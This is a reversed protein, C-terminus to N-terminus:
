KEAKAAFYGLEAELLKNLGRGLVQWGPAGNNKMHGGLGAVAMMIETASPADPLKAKPRAFRLINLQAPTLLPTVTATLRAQAVDRLQLLRWAVSAYLVLANLLSTRSELQLKEFGCGTKLAKFYEEIVWRACYADVIREVQKRTEIPENTVLLWEVPACNEPPAPEYVRVVNLQLESACSAAPVFNSRRIVYSAATVKLEAAREQRPPNSRKNLPTRRYSAGKLPVRGTASPEGREATHRATLTVTRTLMVEDVDRIADVLKVAQGSEDFARRNYHARIVYRAAAAQLQAMLLYSDAERDIVHVVQGPGLHQEVAEAGEAWPDVYGEGDAEDKFTTEINLVGHVQRSLGELTCLLSAHATFGQTGNPLFSLGPRLYDGGFKLETGDHIAVWFGGAERARMLTQRQHPALLGEPTVAENRLLRYTGEIEADDPFAAPLSGGRATELRKAVFEARRNLRADGLDFGREEGGDPRTM